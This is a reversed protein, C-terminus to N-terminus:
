LFLFFVLMGLYGVSMVSLKCCVGARLFPFNRCSNSIFRLVLEICLLVDMFDLCTNMM